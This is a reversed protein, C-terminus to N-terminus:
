CFYIYMHCSLHLKYKIYICFFSVNLHILFHTKLHMVFTSEVLLVNKEWEMKDDLFIM